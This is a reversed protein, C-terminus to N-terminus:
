GSSKTAEQARIAEARLKMQESAEKIKPILKRLERVAEPVQAHESPTLKIWRM